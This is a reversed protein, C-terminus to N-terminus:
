QAWSPRNSSAAPANAPPMPAPAAPPTFGGGSHGGGNYGHMLAAYESHEPDIAKQIVNRERDGKEVEIKAIFEIGDLDAFGRIMRAQQAQPSNDKKSIGRASNLIAKIFARGMQAYKDGKTSYLGILSWVKRRAFQGELVVFECDLYCAGTATNRTAYGGTWGQNPDDFNGRRITLRVKALTGAPILDFQEEADNFNSWVNM